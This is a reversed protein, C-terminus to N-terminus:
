HGKALKILPELHGDVNSCLVDPHSSIVFLLESLLSVVGDLSFFVPHCLPLLLVIFLLLLVIFSLSLSLSFCLSLESFSLLRFFIGIYRLKVTLKM